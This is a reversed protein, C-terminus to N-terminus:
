DRDSEATLWALSFRSFYIRYNGRQWSEYLCGITGDPLRSLSSYQSDGEHLLKAIPWTKGEDDSVRITLNSRGPGTPNSFLWRPKADGNTAGSASPLRYLCGQCHPDFRREDFQPKSWTVGRNRSVSTSRLEAGLVTRADLFLDGDACEVVHCESTNDGVTGGLNWTRGHDDSYIVHSRYVRDDQHVHYGPVLLRGGSLQIGTGPGVGYWTWEARKVDGTIERPPQWTRGNDASCTIFVSTRERSTGAVIEQETDESRSRTYALWVTGTSNDVVASPNGITDAGDDVVTELRGWTKGNDSSRKLVLDINGTLGGGDKRGESFALLDGKPTVILAPIRYRLYGEKGSDFLLDHTPEAGAGVSTAVLLLLVSRRFQRIPATM